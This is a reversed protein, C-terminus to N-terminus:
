TLDKYFGYEVAYTYNYTIWLCVPDQVIIKNYAGCTFCMEGILM